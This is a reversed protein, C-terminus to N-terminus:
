CSRLLCDPSFCLFNAVGCSLPLEASLCTSFFFVAFCGWRQTIDRFVINVTFDKVRWGKVSMSTCLVLSLVLLLNLSLSPVSPRQLLMKRQLSILVVGIQTQTLHRRPVNLCTPPHIHSDALTHCFVSFRRCFKFIWAIINGLAERGSLTGTLYLESVSLGVNRSEQYRM